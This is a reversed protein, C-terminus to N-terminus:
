FEKKLSEYKCLTKAFECKECSIEKNIVSLRVFCHSKRKMPNFFFVRVCVCLTCIEEYEVFAFTTWRKVHFM